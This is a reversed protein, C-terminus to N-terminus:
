RVGCIERWDPISDFQFNLDRPDSHCLIRLNDQTIGSQRLKSQTAIRKFFIDRFCDKRLEPRWRISACYDVAKNVDTINRANIFIASRHFKFPIIIMVVVALLGLIILLIKRPLTQAVLFGVFIPIIIQVVMSLAIIPGAEHPNVFLIFSIAVVTIFSIILTSYKWVGKLNFLLLFGVLFTPLIYTLTSLLADVLLKIASNGSPYYYEPNVPYILYTFVAVFVVIDILALDLLKNKVNMKEMAM